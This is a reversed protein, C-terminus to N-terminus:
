TTETGTHSSEIVRSSSFDDTCLEMNEGAQVMTYLAAAGKQLYLGSFTIFHQM